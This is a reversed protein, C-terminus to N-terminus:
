TPGMSQWFMNTCFHGKWLLLSELTITRGYSFFWIKPLKWVPIQVKSQQFMLKRSAPVKFKLGGWLWHILWTSYPSNCNFTDKELLSINHYNHNQYGMPPGLFMKQFNWHIENYPEALSKSILKSPKSHRKSLFHSKTYEKRKSLKSGTDDKIDPLM